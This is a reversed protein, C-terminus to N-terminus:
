RRVLQNTRPLIIAYSDLKRYPFQCDQTSKRFERRDKEVNLGAERRGRRFCFVGGGWDLWSQLSIFREEGQCQEKIFM